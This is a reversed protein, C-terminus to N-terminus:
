PKVAIRGTYDIRNLLLTPGKVKFYEDVAKRAGDWYGYDDIILVGGSVLKPFLCELEHKTSSYWDTDLRLLAIKDPIQAPITEEVMGKIFHIKSSPYGTSAMNSSVEELSGYCWKNHTAVEAEAWRQYAPARDASSVDLDGPKPMGSFTDYLWLDRDVRGSLISTLAACMSSGGRWVGCEVIAGSISASDLYRVAQYLAYLREPTTMSYPKVKDFIPLFSEDFDSVASPSNKRVVAYSLYGLLNNVPSGIVRELFRKISM